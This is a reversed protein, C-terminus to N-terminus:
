LVPASNTTVASMVTLMRRKTRCNREPNRRGTEVNMSIAVPIPPVRASRSTRANSTAVTRRKPITM